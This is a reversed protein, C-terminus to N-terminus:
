KKKKKKKKNASALMARPGMWLGILMMPALSLAIFVGGVGEFGLAVAVFGFFLLAATIKVLISMITGKFVQGFFSGTANLILQALREISWLIARGGARLLWSGVQRLTALM